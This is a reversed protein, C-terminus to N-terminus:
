FVRRYILRGAITVGRIVMGRLIVRVFFEAMEDDAGLLFSQLFNLLAKVVGLAANFVYARDDGFRNLHAALLAVILSEGFRESGRNLVGQAFGDAAVWM